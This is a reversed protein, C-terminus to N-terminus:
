PATATGSGPVPANLWGLGDRTRQAATIADEFGPLPPNADLDALAGLAKALKARTTRLRARAENVLRMAKAQRGRRLTARSRNADGLVRCATAFGAEVAPLDRRAIALDWEILQRPTYKRLVQDAPRFLPISRLPNTEARPNRTGAYHM